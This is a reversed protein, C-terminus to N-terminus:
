NITWRPRYAKISENFSAAFIAGPPSLLLACLVPSRPIYLQMVIIVHIIPLITIILTLIVVIIILKLIITTVFIILIVTIVM